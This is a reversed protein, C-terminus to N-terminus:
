DASVPDGKALSFPCKVDAQRFEGNISLDLHTLRGTFHARGSGTALEFAIDNGAVVINELPLGAVNQQPIDITGSWNGNNGPALDVLIRLGLGPMAITGEWHGAVLESRDTEAASEVSWSMTVMMLLVLRILPQSRRQITKQSSPGAPFGEPM